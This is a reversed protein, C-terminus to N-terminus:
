VFVWKQDLSGYRKKLKLAEDGEMLSVWLDAAEGEGYEALLQKGRVCRSCVPLEMATAWTSDGCTICPRQSIAVMIGEHEDFVMGAFPDRSSRFGM